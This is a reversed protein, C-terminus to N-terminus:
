RDTQETERTNYWFRLSEYKESRSKFKITDDYSIIKMKYADELSIINGDTYVYIEIILDYVIEMSIPERQKETFTAIVVADEIRGLYAYHLASSSNFLKQYANEAASDASQQALAEVVQLAYGTQLFEEYYYFYSNARIFEAWARKVELMTDYDIEELEPIFKWYELDNVAVISDTVTLGFIIASRDLKYDYEGIVYHPKDYPIKGKEIGVIIYDGAPLNSLEYLDDFSYETEEWNTSYVMFSSITVNEPLSSTLRRELTLHPFNEYKYSEINMVYEWGAIEETFASKEDKYWTYGIHVSVPNISANNDAVIKVDSFQFNPAPEATTEEQATTETEEYLPAETIESTASGTGAAISGIVDAVYGFVPILLSLVLICAAAAIYQKLYKFPSPKKYETNAMNPEKLINFVDELYEDDIYELTQLFRKDKFGLGSSM